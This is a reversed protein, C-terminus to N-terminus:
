KKASTDGIWLCREFRTEGHWGAWLVLGVAPHAVYGLMVADPVPPCPGLGPARRRAM